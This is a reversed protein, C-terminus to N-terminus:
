ERSEENMGDLMETLRYLARGHLKYVADYSRGMRRAVEPLALREVSVLHLIERYDASLRDMAQDIRARTEAAMANQSPSAEVGVFHRTEMRGNRSVERDTARRAAGHREKAQNIKNDAIGCLWNRLDGPSEGTFERHREFAVIRTEQLVDEVSVRRALRAPLGRLIRSTLVPTHSSFLAEFADRDGDQFRCILGEETRGRPVEM